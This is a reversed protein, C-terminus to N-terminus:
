RIRAAAASPRRLSAAGRGSPVDFQHQEVGMAFADSAARMGARQEVPQAIKGRADRALRKGAGTDDRAVFGGELAAVPIKQEAGGSSASAVTPRM